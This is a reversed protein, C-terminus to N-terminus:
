RGVVATGLTATRWGDPNIRPLAGDLRTFFRAPSSDLNAVGATERPIGADSLFKMPDLIAPFRFVEDGAPLKVTIRFDSRLFPFDIIRIVESRKM